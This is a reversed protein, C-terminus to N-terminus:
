LKFLRDHLEPKFWVARYGEKAYKLPMKAIIGTYIAERDVEIKETVKGSEVRSIVLFDNKHKVKSM